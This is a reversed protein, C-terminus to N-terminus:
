GRSVGLTHFGQGVEKTDEKAFYSLRRFVENLSEQDDRRLMTTPNDPFHVLGAVDELSIGLASAWAQCIRSYLNDCSIDFLGLNFFSQKNVMLLVHYHPRGTISLERCWIFRLKTRHVRTGKAQKTKTSHSIKARLSAIFKEIVVNDALEHDAPVHLDVRICFTELYAAQSRQLTQLIRALQNAILAGRHKLVDLGQYSPQSYLQNASITTMKEIEKMSVLYSTPIPAM